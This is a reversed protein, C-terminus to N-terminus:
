TSRPVDPTHTLENLKDLATTDLSSVQRCAADMLAIVERANAAACTLDDLRPHIHLASGRRLILGKQILRDVNRTLTARPVGLYLSLKNVTFPRREYDGITIAAFAIVEDGTIQTRVRREAFLRLISILLQSAIYRTRAVTTLSM